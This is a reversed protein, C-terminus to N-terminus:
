QPGLYNNGVSWYLYTDDCVFTLMTIANPASTLSFIGGNIVQSGQPLALTRGGVNDQRVILCGSMGNQVNALSLTANHSLTVKANYGNDLNWSISPSSTLVQFPTYIKNKSIWSRSGGASSQLIFGDSGPNGLAIEYSENIFQWTTGNWRLYGMSKTIRPEYASHTHGDLSVEAARFGASVLQGSATIMVVDGSFSPNLSELFAKNIFEWTTGNWRLFGIAKTILAEFSGPGYNSNSLYGLHNITPFRGNQPHPIAPIMDTHGHDLQAYRADGRDVNMYQSHDDDGLGQLLGHDSIGEEGVVVPPIWSRTGNVKSSLVYDDVEPNGLDLEYRNDGRSQNLYHPHDDDSLGSLAGHDSVSEGGGGIFVGCPFIDIDITDRCTVDIDIDGGAEEFFIAPRGPLAIDVNIGAM